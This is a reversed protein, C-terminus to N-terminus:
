IVPCFPTSESNWEDRMERAVAETWGEVAFKGAHYYAEGPFGVFGGMSTVNLIVGGVQGGNKPNEDRMVRVAHKAVRVTGWFLTEIQLRAVEDSIAETDGMVAYGANNVVVDLRGFRELAKTIAVDVPAQATVDLALKLINPTDPISDM